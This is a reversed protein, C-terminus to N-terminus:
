VKLILLYKKWKSTSGKHNHVCEDTSLGAHNLPNPGDEKTSFPFSDKKNSPNFLLTVWTRAPKRPSHLPALPQPNQQLSSQTPEIYHMPTQLSISLKSIQHPTGQKYEWQFPWPLFNDPVKLKWQPPCPGAEWWCWLIAFEGCKNLSDPVSIGPFFPLYGGYDVRQSDADM